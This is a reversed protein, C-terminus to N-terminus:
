DQFVIPAADGTPVLFEFDYSILGTIQYNNPNEVTADIILSYIVSGDQQPNNGYSYLNIDLNSVPVNTGNLNVLAGNAFPTTIIDDNQGLNNSAVTQFMGTISGPMIFPVGSPFRVSCLYAEFGNGNDNLAWVGKIHYSIMEVGDAYKFKAGTTTLGAEPYWMFPYSVPSIPNVGVKRVATKFDSTSFLKKIPQSLYEILTRM